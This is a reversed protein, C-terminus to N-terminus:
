NEMHIIVNCYTGKVYFLLILSFGRMLEGM